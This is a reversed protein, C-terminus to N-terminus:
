SLMRAPDVLNANSFLCGAGELLSEGLPPNLRALIGMTQYQERELSGLGSHEELAGPGRVCLYPVHPTEFLAEFLLEQAGNSVYRRARLSM